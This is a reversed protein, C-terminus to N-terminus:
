KVESIDPFVSKSFSNTVADFIFVEKQPLAMIEREIKEWDETFKIAILQKIKERDLQHALKMIFYIQSQALLKKSAEQPRQTTLIVPWIGYNRGARWLRRLGQSYKGAGEPCYDVIEDVVVAFGGRKIAWAYFIDAFSVLQDEDFYSLNFVISKRKTNGKLFEKRVQEFLKLYTVNSAESIGIYSANSLLKKRSMAGLTDFVFVQKDILQAMIATAYTKGSNKLGMVTITNYSESNVIKKLNEIM